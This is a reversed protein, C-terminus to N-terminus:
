VEEVKWTDLYMLFGRVRLNPYLEKVLHKYEKVQQEDQSRTSKYDVIWAEDKKLILRDLRKAHGKKTVIDKETFVEDDPCSFFPKINKKKLGKELM